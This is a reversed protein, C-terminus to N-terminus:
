VHRLKEVPGAGSAAEEISGDFLLQGKAEIGIDYGPEFAVRRGILSILCADIPRQTLVHLPLCASSPSGPSLRAFRAM